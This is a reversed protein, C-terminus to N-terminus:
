KQLTTNISIPSNKRGYNGRAKREESWRALAAAEVEAAQEEPVLYKAVEAIPILLRTATQEAGDIRGDRCMRTVTNVSVGLLGAAQTTTYYEGKM